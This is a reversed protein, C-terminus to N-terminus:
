RPPSAPPPELVGLLDMMDSSPPQPLNNLGDDVIESPTPSSPQQPDPQGPSTNLLKRLEESTAPSPSRLALPDDDSPNPPPDSQHVSQLPSKTLEKELDDTSLSALRQLQSHPKDGAGDHPCDTSEALREDEGCLEPLEHNVPAPVIASQSSTAQEPTAQNALAEQLKKLEPCTRYLGTYILWALKRSKCKRM